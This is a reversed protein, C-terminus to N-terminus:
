NRALGWLGLCCPCKHEHRQVLMSLLLEYEWITAKSLYSHFHKLFCGNACWQMVSDSEVLASNSTILIGVSSPLSPFYDLLMKVMLTKNANLLPQENETGISAGLSSITASHMCFTHDVFHHLLAHGWTGSLLKHWRNWCDSPEFLCLKLSCHSPSSKVSVKM